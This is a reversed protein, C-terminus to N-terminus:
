AIEGAARDAARIPEPLRYRPAASLVLRTATALSVRHGISVYVPRVGDRTRLVRGIVEGRHLLRTSAGRRPGPERHEGVLRSKGCGIAPLDLVVGLHSAIGFRRPHAIGHGDVLLLDPPKVLREFADLIAPVERFALLGPVYPFDLPRVATAVELIELTSRACRVVAARAQGGRVSIDVGAVTELGEIPGFDDERVVRGALERQLAVASRPTPTADARPRPSM